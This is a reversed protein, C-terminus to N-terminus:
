KGLSVIAKNLLVVLIAKESETLEKTLQQMIQLHVKSHLLAAEKGKESLHVHASRKDSDSQIKYLYGNEELRDLMVSASAKSIQLKQSLESLTPNQIENIAEICVLQKTTLNKLENSLKLEEEIQESKHLLIDILQDLKYNM